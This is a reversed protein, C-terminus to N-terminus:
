SSTGPDSTLIIVHTYVHGWFVGLRVSHPAECGTVPPSPLELSVRTNCPAPPPKRGRMTNNQFIESIYFLQFVLQFFM